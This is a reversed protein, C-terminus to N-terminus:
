IVMKESNREERDRCMNKVGFHKDKTPQERKLIHDPMNKTGRAIGQAIQNLSVILM